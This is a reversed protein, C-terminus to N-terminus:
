YTRPNHGRNHCRLVCRGARYGDDQFYLQNGMVPNVVSLDFNILHSNNSSNGQTNSIGHPDHCVSCPTNVEVVHLFHVDDQVNDGDENLLHNRNHCSYCLEYAQYSEPTNDATEYQYKLLNPYISGHPGAPVSSGNSSHCDSCYIM